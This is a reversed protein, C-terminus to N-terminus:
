EDDKNRFFEDSILNEFYQNRSVGEESALFNLQDLTTESIRFSVMKNKATNPKELTAIEGDEDEWIKVDGSIDFASKANHHKLLEDRDEFITLETFGQPLYNLVFESHDETM